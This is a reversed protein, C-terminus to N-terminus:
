PMRRDTLMWGAIGLNLAIFASMLWIDGMVDPVMVVGGISLTGFLIMMVSITRYPCDSHMKCLTIFAVVFLGSCSAVLLSNM